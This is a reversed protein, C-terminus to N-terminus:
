RPGIRIAAPTIEIPGVEVPVPLRSAMRGTPDYHRIVGRVLWGPIPVGGVSVDLAEVAFPRDPAPLLRVRARVDPGWEAFAVALAGPELAVSARRYRRLGALFGALDAAEVTAADLRVRGADLLDLRREAAASWPNFVLDEVVLRLDRVRLRAADPRRLEGVMAADAGLTLRGLRGRRFADPDYALDIRLAEIGTAVDGLQRALAARLTTELASPAVDPGTDLRRTRVTAMTGDPLPFRALVAFVRALHPDTALREAIRRPREATWTPGVDGTKLVMYDVGLPEEDWARTFRLALGDRLAYYRFNSVSFYASNPVVSVTAAAGGSDRAIAALAARVNWDDRIPPTPSSWPVDLM